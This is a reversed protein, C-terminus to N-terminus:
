EFGELVLAEVPEFGTRKSFNMTNVFSKAAKSFDVHRFDFHNLSDRHIAFSGLCMREHRGNRPNVLVCHASTILFRVPLLSFIERAGRFMCGGVYDQYIEWKRTVPMPKKTLKGTSTLLKIEDPVVQEGKIDVEVGGRHQDAFWFRFGNAINKLSAFPGIEKLIEEYVALEGANVREALEKKERWTNWEQTYRGHAETYDRYDAARAEEVAQALQQKKQHPSGFTKDMFSPVYSTFERTALTERANLLEPAMPEPRNAEDTWIVAEGCDRGVGTLFEILDNYDEVEAAAQGLDARRRALQQEYAAQRVSRNHAVTLSRIIGNITM